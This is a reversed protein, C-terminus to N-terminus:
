GLLPYKLTVFWQALLINEEQWIAPALNMVVDNQEQKRGTDISRPTMLLWDQIEGRINTLKTQFFHILHLSVPLCHTAGPKKEGCM